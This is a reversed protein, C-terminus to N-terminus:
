GRASMTTTQFENVADVAKQVTDCIRVTFGMDQLHNIFWAQGPRLEEGPRKFEILLVRAGGFFFARDPWNRNGNGNLKRILVEPWRELIKACAAEEISRETRKPLRLRRKAKTM